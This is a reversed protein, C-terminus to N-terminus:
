VHYFNEYSLLTPNNAFRAENFYEPDVAQGTNLTVTGYSLLVHETYREYLAGTEINSPDTIDAPAEDLFIGDCVGPFLQHRLKETRSFM